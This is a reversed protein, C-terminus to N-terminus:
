ELKCIGAHDSDKFREDGPVHHAYRVGSSVRFDPTGLGNDLGAAGGLYVSWERGILIVLAADTELPVAITGRGLASPQYGGVFEVILDLGVLPRPRVLGFTGALGFHLERGGTFDPNMGN